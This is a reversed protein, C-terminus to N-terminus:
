GPELGDPGDPGDFGACHFDQRTVLRGSVYPDDLMIFGPREAGGEQTSLLGCIGFDGDGGHGADHRDIAEWLRCSSCRPGQDEAM